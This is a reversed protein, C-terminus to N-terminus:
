GSLEGESQVYGLLRMADDRGLVEHLDAAFHDLSENVEKRVEAVTVGDFAGNLAPMFSLADRVKDLVRCAATALDLQEARDNSTAM